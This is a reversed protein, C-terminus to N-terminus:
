EKECYKNMLFALRSRLSPLHQIQENTQFPVMAISLPTGNQSAAYVADVISQDYDEPMVRVKFTLFRHSNITPCTIEAEQILIQM